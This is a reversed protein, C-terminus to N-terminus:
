ESLGAAELGSDASAFAQVRVIRGNRVTWLQSWIEDVELEHMRGKMRMVSVIQDGADVLKRTETRFEDWASFFDVWFSRIGQYGEYRNGSLLGQAVPILEAEPDLFEQLASDPMLDAIEDPEIHEGFGEWFALARRVVEVNEESL